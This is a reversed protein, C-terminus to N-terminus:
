PVPDHGGRAFPHCRVIRRLALGSGRLWGHRVVAVYAYESCTPLYKCQTAVFVNLLPSVARKYVLLLAGAVRERRSSATSESSAQPESM